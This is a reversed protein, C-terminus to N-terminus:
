KYVEMIIDQVAFDDVLPSTLIPWVGGEEWHPHNASSRVHRMQCTSILQHSARSLAPITWSPQGSPPFALFACHHTPHPKHTGTPMAHSRQTLPAQFGGCMVCCVRPYPTFLITSEHIYIYIIITLSSWSMIYVELSLFLLSFNAM